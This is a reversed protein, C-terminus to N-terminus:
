ASSTHGAGRKVNALKVELRSFGESVEEEVKLVINGVRVTVLVRAEAVEVIEGEVVLAGMDLMDMSTELSNGALWGEIAGLRAGEGGTTGRDELVMAEVRVAFGSRSAAMRWPM